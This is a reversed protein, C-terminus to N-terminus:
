AAFKTALDAAIPVKVTQGGYAKVALYLDVFFWIPMAFPLVLASQWGVVPINQAAAYMLYLAVGLANVALSQVVNFRLFKSRHSQLFLVILAIPWLPYCLSSLLRDEPTPPDEVVTAAITPRPPAAQATAAGFASGASSTSRAGNGNTTAAAVLVPQKQAAGKIAQGLRCGPCLTDVSCHTCIEHGCEKCLVATPVAPHYYCGM